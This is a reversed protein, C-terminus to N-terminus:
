GAIASEDLQSLLSEAGWRLYSGRATPRTARALETRLRALGEQEIQRIRERSLGAGIEHLTPRKLWPRFLPDTLGFRQEIVSRQRPTLFEQLWTPLDPLRAGTEVRETWGFFWRINQLSQGGFSPLGLLQADSYHRLEGVTTIGARTLCTVPRAALGSTAVPWADIQARKM